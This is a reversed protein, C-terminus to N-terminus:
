VDNQGAKTVTVIASEWVTQPELVDGITTSTMWMMGLNGAAGMDKKV